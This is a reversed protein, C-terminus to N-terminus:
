TRYVHDRTWPLDNNEPPAFVVQYLQMPGAQFSVMSGVLYLRWMRVFEPGYRREVEDSAHEFRELWCSLTRAYHPRLNEVDLVQLGQPEFVQMFEALSPILAGPFIRREVWADLRGPRDRGISHILGRGAPRLVRQIVRGLAGYNRPHVHELMGVSVFADYQGAIARFDDEVFEVRNALGERGARDRAYAIQERSINFARVRVGYQRAMHLALAGWGCGAEVVSEGPRLRLKRCVHDLKAVQAVELSM